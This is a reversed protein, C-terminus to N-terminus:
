GYGWLESFPVSDWMPMAVLSRLSIFFHKWDGHSGLFCDLVYRTTALYFGVSCILCTFIAASVDLLDCSSRIAQAKRSCECYQMPTWFLDLWFAAGSFHPHWNFVLRLSLLYSFYAWQKPLLHSSVTLGPDEDLNADTCHLMKTGSTASSSWAVQGPTLFSQLVFPLIYGRSEFLIAIHVPLCGIYMFTFAYMGGTRRLCCETCHYLWQCTLILRPLLHVSDFM